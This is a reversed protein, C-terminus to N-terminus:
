SLVDYKSSCHSWSGKVACVWLKYTVNEPLNGTKTVTIPSSQGATSAVRGDSLHAVIGYGDALGDYATLSDGDGEWAAYGANAGETANRVGISFAKSGQTGLTTFTFTDEAAAAPNAAAVVLGATLTAAGVVAGLRAKINSV